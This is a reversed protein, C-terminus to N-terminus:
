LVPRKKRNTFDWQTGNTSYPWMIEGRYQNLCHRGIDTNGKEKRIVDAVTAVLERPLRNLRWKDAHVSILTSCPIENEIDRNRTLFQFSAPSCALTDHCGYESKLRCCSCNTDPYDREKKILNSDECRCSGSLIRVCIWAKPCILLCRHKVANLCGRTWTM